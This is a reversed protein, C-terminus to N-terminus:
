DKVSHLYVDQHPYPISIGEQDFREKITELIESRVSWYDATAVWPRVNIDLSSAGLEGFAIAPAPEPLVRSNATVIETLITKAKKIDDDYSIGIVMDVRRTDRASYNTITNGYIQSNPIIIERNDGTRVITNFIQVSEIVGAVGAAEVFDGPKFPRFIILMVGSSFNSLSDKLALGVALGAAAFLAMISTTDVGLQELAAIVVVVYLAANLLSSIFDILVADIRIKAMLKGVAKVLIGAIWKGVFFVVLATVINIGWPIMYVNVLEDYSIATLDM